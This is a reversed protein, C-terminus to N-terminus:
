YNVSTVKWQGEEQVLEIFHRNGFKLRATTGSVEIEDALELAEKLGSVWTEVREETSQGTKKSLLKILARFNRQEVAALFAKIAHVPTPTHAAVPFGDELNWRKTKDYVVKMRIGSSYVLSASAKVMLKPHKKLTAAQKKLEPRMEKWRRIFEARNVSRRVNKHLLDYAVTPQDTEIAEVYRQLVDQPGSGRSGGSCGALVFTFTLLAVAPLSRFIHTMENSTAM